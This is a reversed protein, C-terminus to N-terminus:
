RLDHRGSSSRLIRLAEQYHNMAENTKGQTALVRGLGAHAEALNPDIGLAQEFRKAAEELQGQKALIIALNNYGSADQPKLEVMRRLYKTAENLEGHRALVIALNNQNDPDNPNIEVARRLHKIAGEADGQGLLANAINTHSAADIPNIELARRFHRIAPELEGQKALAIGMNNLTAADDPNIELARRFHKIAEGLNGQRALVLALGTQVAGDKPDLEAARRFHEGAEDLDGRQSLLKGLNYRIDVFFPHFKVAQRLHQIGEDIRGSAALATGLNFHALGSPSVALAHRWLSESDHWLQTQKWASKGLAFLVVIVLGFSLAVIKKGMPGGFWRRWCTQLAGALLASWVLCSLYSYRDAVLQPGAQAIGLVPALIAIYCIWSVLGAPWRRRAIFFGATLVVVIVASLLFSWHFPDVGIPIEYLPSLRTPALTKVLYFTIGFLSQAVRRALDHTQSTILAGYERQAALAILAATVALVVFPAKEWWVRRAGAGFWKGAGAELRGLPYVDLLLLVVPLTMGSAKSLLSLAYLIVSAAIWRRWRSNNVESSVAKLYSLVTLLLFFGSLVDRRETAWAVSEVRLPHIAFFLASFGSALRLVLESYDRSTAFALLRLTIFYFVVANASHFLINTLHYGFPDMGWLMYDLGFTLWSLPQYHGTHFTTFMWRLHSGTLGRYNKNELLTIPDDWNVFGNQLAPSFVLFTTVAVVCPLLCRLVRTAGDWHIPALNSTVDAVTNKREV